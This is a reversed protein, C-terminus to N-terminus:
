KNDKSYSGESDLSRKQFSNTFDESILLDESIERKRLPCNATHGGGGGGCPCTVATKLPDKEVSSKEADAKRLNRNVYVNENETLVDRTESPGDAAHGGGGGGCPCNLGTDLKISEKASSWEANRKQFIDSNETKKENLPHGGGSPCDSAHGGGQGGCPCNLKSEKINENVSSLDTERKQYNDSNASEVHLNGGGSPCDSAHGGGGGGCPCNRKSEKINEKVSSLDANRKKFLDSNAKEKNNSIKDINNLTNGGGSPCDSAHGGGGGGCPCNLGTDKIDEKVFSVDADRKKFIDSNAVEKNSKIKDIGNVANGDGSPCDSAHGGGEGKGCPCSLKSETVSSFDIDRKKFADSNQGEKNSALKGDILGGGGSPCDSAHGGGGGGCPCNLGTEKANEKISSLDADRKKFLDSSQTEKNGGFKDIATLTHEGGSPCNGAHGGGGGGCPCNERTERLNETESTKRLGTLKKQLKGDNVAHLKDNTNFSNGEGSPCNVAHGGGSGGCPCNLRSKASNDKFATHRKQYVDVEGFKKNNRMKDFGIFREDDEKREAVYKETNAREKICKLMARKTCKKLNDDFATGRPCKMLLSDYNNDADRKDFYLFFSLCDNPNASTRYTLGAQAPESNTNRRINKDSGSSHNLITGSLKSNLDVYVAPKPDELNNKGGSFGTAKTVCYRLTADFIQDQPCRKRIAVFGGDTDVDCHWYESLSNPDQFDGNFKCTFPADREHHQESKCPKKKYNDSKVNILNCLILFTWSAKLHLTKMM